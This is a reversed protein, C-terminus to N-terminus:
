RGSRRPGPRRTRVRTGRLSMARPHSDPTGWRARMSREQPPEWVGREPREGGARVASAVRARERERGEGLPGGGELRYDPKSMEGAARRGSYDKRRRAEGVRLTAGQPVQPEGPPREGIWRSFDFRDERLREAVSRNAEERREASCVTKPLLFEGGIVHRGEEVEERARDGFEGADDCPGRTVTESSLEFGGRAAKTRERGLAGLLHGAALPGGRDRGFRVRVEEDGGGVVPLALLHLLEEGSCLGDTFALREELSRAGHEHLLEPIGALAQEARLEGVEALLGFFEVRRVENSDRVARADVEPAERCDHINRLLLGPDLLLNIRNALPQFEDHLFFFSALRWACRPVRRPGRLRFGPLSRRGRRRRVRCSSSM